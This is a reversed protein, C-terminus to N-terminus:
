EDDGIDSLDAENINEDDSCANDEESGTEDGDVEDVQERVARVPEELDDATIGDRRLYEWKAEFKSALDRQLQAQDEAFSLLGEALEPTVQRGEANGREVWWAAKYHFYAIVRRM